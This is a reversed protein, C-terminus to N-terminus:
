RMFCHIVYAEYMERAAQFYLAQQVFLVSLYAEICLM